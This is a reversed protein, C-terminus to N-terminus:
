KKEKKYIREWLEDEKDWASKFSEETLVRWFKNEMELDTLIGEERKIVIEGDREILVLTSEKKIGLDKRIEEPIVIQGRENVKVTRLKQEKIMNM